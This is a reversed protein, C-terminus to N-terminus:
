SGGEEARKVQAGPRRVLLAHVASAVVPVCGRGREGRIALLLTGDQAAGACVVCGPYIELQATVLTPTTPRAFFLVDAIAPDAGDGAADVCARMHVDDPGPDQSSSVRILDSM